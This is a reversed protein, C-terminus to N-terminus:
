DKQEDSAFKIDMVRIMGNEDTEGTKNIEFTISQEGSNIGSVKNLVETRQEKNM